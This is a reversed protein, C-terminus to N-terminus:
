HKGEQGRWMWVFVGAIVIALGLLWLWYRELFGAEAVKDVPLPVTVPPSPQPPLAPPTPQEVVPAPALVPPPAPAKPPAHKLTNKKAKLIVPKPAPENGATTQEAIAGAVPAPEPTAEPVSPKEAVAAVPAPEAVSVPEPKSACASLILASFLLTVPIAVNIMKSM